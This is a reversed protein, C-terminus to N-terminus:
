SITKYHDSCVYFTPADWAVNNGAFPMRRIEVSSEYALAFKKAGSEAMSRNSTIAWKEDCFLGYLYRRRPQNTTQTTM